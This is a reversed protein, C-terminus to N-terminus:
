GYYIVGVLSCIIGCAGVIFYNKFAKIEDTTDKHAQIISEYREACKETHEDHKTSIIALQRLAEQAKDHANTAITKADKAIGM